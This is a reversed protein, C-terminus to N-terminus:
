IKEWYGGFAQWSAKWAAEHASLKTQRALRAEENVLINVEKNTCWFETSTTCCILPYGPCPLADCCVPNVLLHVRRHAHADYCVPNANQHVCPLLLM